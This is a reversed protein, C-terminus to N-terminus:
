VGSFYCSQCQFCDDDDSAYYSSPVDTYGNFEYLVMEDFNYTEAMFTRRCIFIDKKENSTLM